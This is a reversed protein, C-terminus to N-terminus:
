PYFCHAASVVVNGSVLAGGCIHFFKGYYKIQVSVQYNLEKISAQVGNVIRGEQGDLPLNAAWGLAVFAFTILCIRFM